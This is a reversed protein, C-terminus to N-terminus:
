FHRSFYICKGPKHLIRLFKLESKLPPPLPLKDLCELNQDLKFEYSVIEFKTISGSDDDDVSITLRFPKHCRELIANACLNKLSPANQLHDEPELQVVRKRLRAELRVVSMRANLIKNIASIETKYVDCM